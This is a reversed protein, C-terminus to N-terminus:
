AAERTPRTRRCRPCIDHNGITGWRHRTFYQGSAVSRCKPIRPPKASPLPKRPPRSSRKVANHGLVATGQIRSDWLMRSIWARVKGKKPKEAERGVVTAVDKPHVVAPVTPPAPNPNVLPEAKEVTASPDGATSETEKKRRLAELVRRFLSM